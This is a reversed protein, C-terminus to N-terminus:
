ECNMGHNLAKRYLPIYGDYPDDENAAKTKFVRADLTSMSFHTDHEALEMFALDVEEPQSLRHSMLTGKLDLSVAIPPHMVYLPRSHLLILHLFHSAVWSGV